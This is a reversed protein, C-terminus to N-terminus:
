ILYFFGVDSLRETVPILIPSIDNYLSLAVGDGYKPRLPGTIRVVM